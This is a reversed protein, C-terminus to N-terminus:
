GSAKGLLVERVVSTKVSRIDTRDLATLAVDIQSTRPRDGVGESHRERVQKTVDESKRLGRM